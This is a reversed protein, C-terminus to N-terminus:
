VRMGYILLRELEGNHGGNENPEWYHGPKEFFDFGYLDVNKLGITCYLWYIMSLGTSPHPNLWLLREFLEFPIFKAGSAVAGALNHGGYYKAISYQTLFRPDNLPLPCLIKNISLRPLTLYWFSNVWHTTKHGYDNEYGDLLFNHFRLVNDHADIEAGKNLGLEGPGNGVIAITGNLDM